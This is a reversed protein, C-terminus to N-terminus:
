LDVTITPPVRGRHGQEPRKQASSQLCCMDNWVWEPPVAASCAPGRRCSFSLHEKWQRGPWWWQSDCVPGSRSRLHVFVAPIWMLKAGPDMRIIAESKLCLITEALYRFSKEYAVIWVASDYNRTINKSTMIFGCGFVCWFFHVWVQAQCFGFIEDVDTIQRNHLLCNFRM